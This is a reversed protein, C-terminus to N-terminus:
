IEPIGGKPGTDQDQSSPTQEPSSTTQSRTRSGRARRYSFETGAERKEREAMEARKRRLVKDSWKQRDAFTKLNRKRWSYRGQSVANRDKAARAERAIRQADEFSKIRKWDHSPPEAKAGRWNSFTLYFKNPRRYDANGGRGREVRIFGLAEAERTAPAVSSRHMGYEVFQDVTVPLQGNDNGGHHALEVEVRSIVMHASVSLARYAPSELMEIPRAAFQGSIANRRKPHPRNDHERGSM